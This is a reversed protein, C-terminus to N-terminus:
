LDEDKIKVEFPVGKGLNFKFGIVGLSGNFAIQSVKSLNSKEIFLVERV